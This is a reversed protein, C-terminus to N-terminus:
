LIMPYQLLVTPLSLGYPPGFLSSTSEPTDVLIRYVLSSNTYFDGIYCDEEVDCM